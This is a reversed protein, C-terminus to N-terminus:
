VGALHGSENLRHLTFVTGEVVIENLCCPEQKLRWYRSLPLGLAQLLLVRNISDHGVLVLTKGVHRHLVERLVNTGRALVDALSEGGPIAALDPAELWTRHEDPWRQRVEEHTLGQWQGYDTDALGDLVQTPAGTARAIAAGTDVCRSLPSTYIAEPQWTEAIRQAVALVQRKGLDSLPLEARGRFREPAIWDVHGHRTLIIQTM